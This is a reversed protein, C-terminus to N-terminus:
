SEAGDGTADAARAPHQAPHVRMSALGRPSLAPAHDTSDDKDPVFVVNRHVPVTATSWDRGTFHRPSYGLASLTDIITATDTGFRALHRDELELMLIPRMTRLTHAAGILLRGESGEVDVKIFDVRTLRQEAVFTDLSTM